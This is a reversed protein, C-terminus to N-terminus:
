GAGWGAGVTAMTDEAAAAAAAAVELVVFMTALAAADADAAATAAAGVAGPNASGGPTESLTGGAAAVAAM